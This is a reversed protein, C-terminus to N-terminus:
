IFKYNKVVTLKDSDSLLDFQVFCHNKMKHILVFAGLYYTERM